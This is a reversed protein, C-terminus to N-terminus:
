LKEVIQWNRDNLTYMDEELHMAHTVDIDRPEETFVERMVKIYKVMVALIASKGIGTVELVIRTSPVVEQNLTKYTICGIYDGVKLGQAKLQDLKNM